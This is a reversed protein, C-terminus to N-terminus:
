SKNSLIDKICMNWLNIWVVYSDVDLYTAVSGYFFGGQTSELAPYGCYRPPFTVGTLSM